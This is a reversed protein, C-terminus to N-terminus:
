YRSYSIVQGNRVRCEGDYRRAEGRPFEIVLTMEVDFTRRARPMVQDVSEFYVADGGRALEKAESALACAEVADAAGYGIPRGQAEDDAELQAMTGDAIVDALITDTDGPENYDPEPVPEARRGELIRFVGRCGGNTWVGGSDYGWTSNFTCPTTSDQRALEVGYLTDVPCYTYRYGGSSCEVYFDAMAPLTMSVSAALAAALRLKTM